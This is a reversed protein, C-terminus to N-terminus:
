NQLNDLFEDCADTIASELLGIMGSQSYVANSVKISDSSGVSVTTKYLTKGLADLITVTMDVNARCSGIKGIGTAMSKTFNLEVFMSRQIGTESELAQPFKKDGIDIYRYNNPKLIDQSRSVQFRNLRANAYAQSNLVTEKEALNIVGSNTLAERILGDATNILEDAGTIIAMDTDARLARKQLLGATNPDTSGEDKWNIDQNSVISVLAIPDKQALLAAKGASLCGTGLSILAAALFVFGTKKM